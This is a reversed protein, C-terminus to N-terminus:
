LRERRPPRLAKLVGDDASKWGDFRIRGVRGRGRGAGPARADGPSRPCPALRGAQAIHEDGGHPRVGDLQAIEVGGAQSRRRPAHDAGPDAGLPGVHPPEGHEAQTERRGIEGGEAGLGLPHQRGHGGHLAHQAPRGVAVPQRGQGVLHLQGKGIQGHVADQQHMREFAGFPHAGHHPFDPPHERVAATQQHHHGVPAADPGAELAGGKAM